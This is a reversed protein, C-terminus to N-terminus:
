IKRRLEDDRELLGLGIWEEESPIVIGGLSDALLIQASLKCGLEQIETRPGDVSSPYVEESLFCDLCSCCDALEQWDEPDIFEFSEDSLGEFFQDFSM